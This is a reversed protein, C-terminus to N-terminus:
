ISSNYPQLTSLNLPQPIRESSHHLLSRGPRQSPKLPGGPIASAGVGGPRTETTGPPEQLGSHCGQLEAAQQGRPRNIGIGIHNKRSHGRPQAAASRPDCVRQRHQATASHPVVSGRYGTRPQRRSRGVVTIPGNECRGQAPPKDVNAVGYAVPNMRRHAVAGTRRRLLSVM